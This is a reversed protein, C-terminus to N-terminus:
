DATIVLVYSSEGCKCPVEVLFELWYCDPDEEMEVKTLIGETGSWEQLAEKDTIDIGNATARAMVEGMLIPQKADM